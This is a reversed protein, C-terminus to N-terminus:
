PARAAKASEELWTKMAEFEDLRLAWFGAL